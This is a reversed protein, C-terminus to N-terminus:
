QFYYYYYYHYKNQQKLFCFGNHTTFVAVRALTIAIKAKNAKNNNLPFISRIAIINKAIFIRQKTKNM